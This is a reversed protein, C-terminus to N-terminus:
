SLLQRRVGHRRELAPRDQLSTDGRRRDVLSRKRRAVRILRYCVGILLYPAAWLGIFLGEARKGSLELAVAVSIAVMAARLFTKSSLNVEESSTSAGPTSLTQFPHSGDPPHM